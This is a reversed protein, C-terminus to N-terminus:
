QCYRRSRHSDNRNLRLQSVREISLESWGRKEVVAASRVDCKAGGTDPSVSWANTGFALTRLFAKGAGSQIHGALRMTVDTCHKLTTAGYVLVEPDSNTAVGSMFRPHSCTRRGGAAVSDKVVGDEEGSLGVHQSSQHSVCSEARPVSKATM